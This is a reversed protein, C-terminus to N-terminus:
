IRTVKATSVVVPSITSVEELREEYVTYTKNQEVSLDSAVAEALFLTNRVTVFREGEYVSFKGFKHNEQQNAM